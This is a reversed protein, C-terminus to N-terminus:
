GVVRGPPCIKLSPSVELVGSEIIQGMYVEDALMWENRVVSPLLLMRTLSFACRAPVSKQPGTSGRAQVPGSWREAYDILRPLSIM